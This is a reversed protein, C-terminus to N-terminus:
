KFLKRSFSNFCLAFIPWLLSSGLLSSEVIGQLLFAIFFGLRIKYHEDKYNLSFYLLFCVILYPFLFGYEVLGTLYFNDIGANGDLLNFYEKLPYGLPFSKDLISYYLAYTELRGNDQYDVMRDKIPTMMIITIILSLVVSMYAIKKVSINTSIVLFIILFIIASRSQTLFLVYIIPILLIFRKKFICIAATIAATIGILNPHIKLTLNPLYILPYLREGFTLITLNTGTAQDFFPLSILLPSLILVYMNFVLDEKGNFRSSFLVITLSLLVYSSFNSFSTLLLLPSLILIVLISIINNFAEKLLLFIPILILSLNGSMSSVIFITLIIFLLSYDKIDSYKVKM